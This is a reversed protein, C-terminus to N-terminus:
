SSELNRKEQYCRQCRGMDEKSDRKHQWAKRTWEQQSNKGIQFEDLCAVKSYWPLDLGYRRLWEVLGRWQHQSYHQRQSSWRIMHYRQKLPSLPHAHDFM